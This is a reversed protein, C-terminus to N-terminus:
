SSKVETMLTKALPASGTAYPGGSAVLDSTDRIQLSNAHCGDVGCQELGFQDEKVKLGLVTQFEGESIHVGLGQNKLWTILQDRKDQGVGHKLVVIM